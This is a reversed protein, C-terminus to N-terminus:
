YWGVHLYEGLHESENKMEYKMWNEYGEVEQVYNVYKVLFHECADYMQTVMHRRIVAYEMAEPATLSRHESVALLRQQHTVM